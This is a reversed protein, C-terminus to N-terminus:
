YCYYNHYFYHCYSIEIVLQINNVDNLIVRQVHNNSINLSVVKQIRYEGNNVFWYAICNLIVRPFM